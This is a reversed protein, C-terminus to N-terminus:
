RRAASPRSTQGPSAQILRSEQVSPGAVVACRLGAARRRYRAQPARRQAALIPGAATRAPWYHPHDHRRARPPRMRNVQQQTAMMVAHGPGSQGSRARSYLTQGAPFFGGLLCKEATGATGMDVHSSPPCRGRRHCFALPAEGWGSSAHRPQSPHAPEPRRSRSRSRRAPGTYSVARLPKTPRSAGTRGSGM